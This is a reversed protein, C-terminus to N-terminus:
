TRKYSKKDSWPGFIKKGDVTKYARVQYYRTSGKAATMKKYSETTYYGALKVYKGNQLKYQEVHYGSAGDIKKWSVKVSTGSKAASPKAMEKLTYISSVKSQTSTYRTEDYKFYPVVKFNYKVGDALNAATVSTATTRKLLTYSKSTSKKYYVNYGDAGTPKSWSIKVDDYGYLKTTMTGPAKPTIAFEKVLTGSYDGQGEVLVYALGVSKNSEYSVTYDEGQIMGDITVTPTKKKGDYSVKTYELAIEDLVTVDYSTIASGYTLIISQVGPKSLDCNAAAFGRRVRKTSGDEYAAELVLGSLNLEEGKEFFNRTAPSTVRLSKPKFEYAYRKKQMHKIVNEAKESVFFTVDYCNEFTGWEIQEIDDELIISKLDDCCHFAYLNIKKVSAPITVSELEYCGYFARSNIETVGDKIIVSKVDQDFEFANQEIEGEGFIEVAGDAYKYYRVSDTYVAEEYDETNIYEFKGCNGQDVPMTKDCTNCLDNKDEDCHAPYIKEHGSAWRGCDHCLEGETYGFTYCRADLKEHTETNEHLCYKLFPNGCNEAYGQTTSGEYGIMTARESFERHFVPFKCDPNLVTIEQIYECGAFSNKKIETIGEGIIVKKIDYDYEFAWRQIEGEGYIDLTGDEYLYYRASGDYGDDSLDNEYGGCSGSKVPMKNDCRDCIKDKDKDRHSVANREHGSVWRNCDECFVGATYGYANCKAEVEPVEVASEHPCYELFTKGHEKAYDEATSNKEGIITTMEEPITETFWEVICDPNLITIERLNWCGRFAGFGIETVGEKLTVRKIRQDDEFNYSGVRGEGYIELTGDEYCYYKVPNEESTYEEDGYLDTGCDGSEIPMVEECLDCLGDQEKDTHIIEIREHGSAWRGCDSCLEGPTYGFTYCTAETGEVESTNKHECYPFFTRDFDYAYDEATSGTHGIIIADHPFVESDDDFICEPNLVTVEKINYCGYFTNWCIGSVKEGIIVKKISDDDEFVWPEIEGEGYIELTGDEYFYYKVAGDYGADYELPQGGCTGTKMDALSRKCTDCVQNQDADVHSAEIKDHGFAWRGCDDCLVGETYGDEHCTAEVSEKETVNEHPCYTLFAREHDSAYIYATSDKHGIITVGYPFTDYDDYIYCDPNMITVESMNDCGWFAGLGIDTIGEHIVVKKINVDWEFAYSQIKGKGYIDMTGDKYLYYKAAGDFSGDEETSFGGCTKTEMELLSKKCLDCVDNKDNDPHGAEIVEHGSTWNGCANCKEGETYGDAYCTAATGAQTSTEKHECYVEECTLIVEIEGEENDVLFRAGWYYTEGAVLDDEIYFQVGTEEGDDNEKIADANTDSGYLYGYTDQDSRSTFSYKGSVEPVFKLMLIEGAAIFITKTEGSTITEVATEEGGDGMAEAFVAMSSNSMILTLALIIALMKKLKM